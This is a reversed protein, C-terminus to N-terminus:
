NNPNLFSHQLLEERYIIVDSLAEEFSIDYMNSLGEAIDEVSENSELGKYIYYGTENLVVPHEMDNEDSFLFYSGAVQRIM